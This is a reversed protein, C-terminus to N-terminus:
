SNEGFRGDTSTKIYFICVQIREMDQQLRRGHKVKAYDSDLWTRLESPM